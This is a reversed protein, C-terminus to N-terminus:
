ILLKYIINSLTQETIESANGDVTQLL